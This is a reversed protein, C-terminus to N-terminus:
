YGGDQWGSSSGLITLHGSEKALSITRRDAGFALTVEGSELPRGEEDFIVSADAGFSMDILHVGRFVGAEPFRRVFPLDTRPHLIVEGREDVVSYGEGDADFTFRSPKGLFASRNQAARMDRALLIAANELTVGGQDFWGHITVASVIAVCALSAFLESLSFGVKTHM